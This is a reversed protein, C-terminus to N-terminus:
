ETAINNYKVINWIMWPESFGLNQTSEEVLVVTILTVESSQMMWKKGWWSRYCHSYCQSTHLKPLYMITSIYPSINGMNPLIYRYPTLIIKNSLIENLSLSDEKSTLNKCVRFHSSKEETTNHERRPINTAVLACGWEVLGLTLNQAPEFGARPTESIRWSSSRQHHDQSSILSFAKRRDVMGCFSNVM